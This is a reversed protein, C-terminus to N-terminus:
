VRPASEVGAHPTRDRHEPLRATGHSLRPTLGQGHTRRLATLWLPLALAYGIVTSVSALVWISIRLPLRDVPPGLPATFFWIAAVLGAALASVGVLAVSIWRVRPRFFAILQLGVYTATAPLPMEVLMYWSRESAWGTEAFASQTMRNLAVLTATGGAAAVWSVALTRRSPRVMCQRRAWLGYIGTAVVMPPWIFTAADRSLASFSFDAVSM